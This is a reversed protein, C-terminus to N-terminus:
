SLRQCVINKSSCVKRENDVRVAFTRESVGSDTAHDGMLVFMQVKAPNGSVISKQWSTSLYIMLLLSGCAFVVLSIATTAVIILFFIWM